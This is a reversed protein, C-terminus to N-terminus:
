SINDDAMTTSGTCEVRGGRGVVPTSNKIITRRATRVAAPAVAPLDKVVVENDVM